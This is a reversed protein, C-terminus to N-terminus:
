PKDKPALGLKKAQDYSIVSANGINNPDSQRAASEWFNDLDRTAFKRKLPKHFIAEVDSTDEEPPVGEFEDEGPDPLIEAEPTPQLGNEQNAPAAGLNALCTLLDQAASSAASVVVPKSEERGPTITLLAHSPGVHVLCLDIEKGAIWVLNRSPRAGLSLSVKSSASLATLLSSILGTIELADGAQALVQGQDGL